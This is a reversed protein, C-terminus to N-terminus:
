MSATWLTVARIVINANARAVAATITQYANTIKTTDRFNTRMLKIFLPGFRGGGEMVAPTVKLRSAAYKRMKVEEMEAAAVEDKMASGKALATQSTPMVVSVDVHHARLAAGVWSVDARGISQGATNTLNQELTTVYGEDAMVGALAAKVDEHRNCLGGGFSDGLLHHGKWDV